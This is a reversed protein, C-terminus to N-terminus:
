LRRRYDWVGARSRQDRFLAQYNPFSTDLTGDYRYFADARAKALAEVSWGQQSVKRLNMLFGQVAAPAQVSLDLANFMTRNYGQTGPSLGLGRLVSQFKLGQQTLVGMWQRDVQEPTMNNGRGGSVTGRNNNGDGPDTHGYYHRTYEGSATRTGEAIGIAVFFPHNPSTIAVPVAQTAANADVQPLPPQKMTPAERKAWMKALLETQDENLVSATLEGANAQSGGGPTVAGALATLASSIPNSSQNNKNRQDSPRTPGGYGGDDDGSGSNKNTNREYFGRQQQKQEKQGRQQLRELEEGPRPFEPKGDPGIVLQMQSQMLKSLRNYSDPRNLPINQQQALEIIRRPFQQVGTKGAKINAEFENLDNAIVSATDYNELPQGNKLREIRRDREKNINEVFAQNLQDQSMPKGAEIAARQQAMTDEFAKLKLEGLNSQYLDEPIPLNNRQQYATQERALDRAATELQGSRSAATSSNLVDNTLRDETTQGSQNQNYLGLGVGMPLQNSRMLGLIENGLADKDRNPDKVRELLDLQDVTMAGGFNEAATFVNMLSLLTQPDNITPIMALLDLRAFNDGTAARKALPLALEQGERRAVQEQLANVGKRQQILWQNVNTTKDKGAPISQEWFNLGNDLKLDGAALLEITNLLADAKEWEGRARYEDLQVQARSLYTALYKQPSTVGKSTQQKVDEAFALQAMNVIRGTEEPPTDPGKLSDLGETLEITNRVQGDGIQTLNIRQQDTNQAAFAKGRVAGNIQGVEASMSGLADAPLGALGSMQMAKQKIEGEAAAYADPDKLANAGTIREDALLLSPLLEKYNSLASQKQSAIFLNKTYGSLSNIRAQTDPDGQLYKKGIEPDQKILEGLQDNAKQQIISKGVTEVIPSLGDIFAKIEADTREANKGAIEVSSADIFRANPAQRVGRNNDVIRTQQRQRASGVSM